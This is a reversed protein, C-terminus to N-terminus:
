SAFTRSLSYPKNIHYYPPSVKVANTITLTCSGAGKKFTPSKLLLTGKTSTALTQTASVSGSWTASLTVSPVVAGTATGARTTITSSCSYYSVATSGKGSTTTTLTLATGVTFVPSGSPAATPAPSPSPVSPPRPSPSPSPRPSPSAAPPNPNPFTVGVTYSGISGYAPYGYSTSATAMPDGAGVGQVTIYYTGATPVNFNINGVGLGVPATIGAPNQSAIQRGTADTVNVLLDENARITTGWSSAVDAWFTAPGAASAFKYMHPSSSTLSGSASATISAAVLTNQLPVATAMTSGTPATAYGVKAAIISIDNQTNSAGTYTGQSWQSLSQWYATGMIPAWGNGGTHYETYTGGPPTIGDHDLGFTHGAEHTVAEWVYKPHNPGLNKPFVFAPQYYLDKNGFVGIHAVGGYSGFWSGDGGICVRMYTTPDAGLQSNTTVDINFPAYDEAVAAWIADIDNLEISSFPLNTNGDRDWRPTIIEGNPGCLPSSSGVCYDNWATGTIVSGNFDLWLKYSAGPRSSMGTGDPNIRAPGDSAALGERLEKDSAMAPPCQATVILADLDMNLDDNRGLMAELAAAGAEPTDEGLNGVRLLIQETLEPGLQQLFQRADGDTKFNRKKGSPPGPEDTFQDKKNFEATPPVDKGRDKGKSKSNQALTRHAAAEALICLLLM